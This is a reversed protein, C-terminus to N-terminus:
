SEWAGVPREYKVACDNRHSPHAILWQKLRYMSRLSHRFASEDIRIGSQSDGKAGVKWDGRKWYIRVVYM